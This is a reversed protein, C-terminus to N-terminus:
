ERVASISGRANSPFAASIDIDHLGTELVMAFACETSRGHGAASAHVHVHAAQSHSAMPPHIVGAEQTTERTHLSLPLPLPLPLPLTSPPLMPAQM